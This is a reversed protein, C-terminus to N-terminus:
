PGGRHLRAGAEVPTRGQADRGQRQLHPRLRRPRGGPGGGHQGADQGGLSLDHELYLVDKMVGFRPGLLAWLALGCLLALAFPLFRKLLHSTFM